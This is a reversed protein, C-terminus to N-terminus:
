CNFDLTELILLTSNFKLCVKTKLFNGMVMDTQEAKSAKHNDFVVTTGTVLNDKDIIHSIM